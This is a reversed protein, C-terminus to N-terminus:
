LKRFSFQRNLHPEFQFDRPKQFLEARKLGPPFGYRKLKIVAVQWLGDHSKIHHKTKSGKTAKIIYQTLFCSNVEGGPVVTHPDFELCHKVEVILLNTQKLFNNIHNDYRILPIRGFAAAGALTFYGWRYLEADIIKDYGMVNQGIVNQLM